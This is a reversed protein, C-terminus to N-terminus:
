LYCPSGDKSSVELTLIGTKGIKQYKSWSRAEATVQHMAEWSNWIDLYDYPSPFEWVGFARSLFPLLEKEYYKDLADLCADFLHDQDHLICCWNEM